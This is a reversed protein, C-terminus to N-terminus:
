SGCRTLIEGRSTAASSRRPLGLMSSCGPVPLFGAAPKSVSSFVITTPTQISSGPSSRITARRRCSTRALAATYHTDDRCEQRQRNHGKRLVVLRLLRDIMADRDHAEGINRVAHFDRNHRRDAVECILHVYVPLVNEVERGGVHALIPLPRPHRANREQRWPRIQQVFLGEPCVAFPIPEVHRQAVDAALHRAM